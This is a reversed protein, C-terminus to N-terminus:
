KGIPHHQAHSFLATFSENDTGTIWAQVGLALIEEFLAERRVDDLHAVIDDLLFLPSLRRHQILTRVYALMIAIMLSKQEGTSCLEAPCAKARYTVALDSRHPGVHCIGNLADEGRCRQLTERLHDEVLLAAKDDLTEEPTGKLALDAQPFASDAAEGIATRLQVLLQKRASAIAVGTQAMENELGSLWVADSIGERLLRSRERLAKEYRTMRGNHAPDFSYVLRDLWKRRASAGEALLRDMAPTIWAMAVHDALVNQSRSSIGDIHVVRRDHEPDDTNRGTGISLTGFSTSLQTAVAWPESSHRNQLDTLEARRLGRGPVLLSIAELLNTKGSGNPGTIIVPAPSFELRCDGYNRFATLSLRDISLCSIDSASTYDEERKRSRAPTPEDFKTSLKM